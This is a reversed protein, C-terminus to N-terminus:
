SEPLRRRKQAAVDRAPARRQPFHPSCAAAKRLQLKKRRRHAVSRQWALNVLLMGLLGVVSGVVVSGAYLPAWISDLQEILSGLSLQGSSLHPPACLLWSGVRYNLYFAPAMTLPNTVMIMALAVPLNVRLWVALVAITLMQPIPLFAVCLGVGTARAVSRRRLRWLNPNRLYDGAHKLLWHDNLRDPDPLVRRLLRRPM